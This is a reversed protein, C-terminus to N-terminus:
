GNKKLLDTPGRNGTAAPEFEAPIQVRGKAAKLVRQRDGM